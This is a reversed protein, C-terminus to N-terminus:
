EDESGSGLGGTQRVDQLYQLFDSPAVPVGFDPWTIYHYQHVVREEDSTTSSLRSFPESLHYLHNCEACCPVLKVQFKKLHLKTESNWRDTGSKIACRWM